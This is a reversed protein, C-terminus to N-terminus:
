PAHPDDQWQRRGPHDTRGHELRHPQGSDYTGAGLEVVQASNPSQARNIYFQLRVQHLPPPLCPRRHGRLLALGHRGGIALLQRDKFGGSGAAASYCADVTLPPGPNVATFRRWAGASRPHGPQDTGEGHTAWSRQRRDPWHPTPRTWTRSRSAWTSWRWRQSPSRGLASGPAARSLESMLDAWTESGTTTEWRRVMYRGLVEADVPSYGEARAYAAVFEAAMAGDSVDGEPSPLHLPDADRLALDLTFRSIVQNGLIGLEDKQAFVVDGAEHAPNPFGVITLGETGGAKLPLNAQAM